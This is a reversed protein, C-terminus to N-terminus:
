EELEFTIQAGPKFDPSWPNDDPRLALKVERGNLYDPESTVIRYAYAPTGEGDRLVALVM